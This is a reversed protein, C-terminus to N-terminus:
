LMALRRALALAGRVPEHVLVVSQPASAQQQLQNLLEERLRPQNLIVGGALALPYDGGGFALRQVATAILLALEHAATSVISRAVDDEDATEFVVKALDALRERSMEAAYVREVLQLSESAHLAQQFRDLLATAPGRGDAARVAAQLGSRAIWYASGEDGLVYGWGGCRVAEGAANRGIALSGTGCILAVGINHPSAAALIPEADGTVQVQRAIGRDLLWATIQQQESARGAGALGFCASQVAARPVGADAFAAAIAADINALAADFGAARPNGPGAQGRGLVEGEADLPALWAATKTGGGDIGLILAPTEM